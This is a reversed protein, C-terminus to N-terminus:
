WEFGLDDLRAVIAIIMKGFAYMGFIVIYRRPVYDQQLQNLSAIM